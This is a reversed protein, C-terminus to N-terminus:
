YITYEVRVVHLVQQYICMHTHTKCLTNYRTGLFDDSSVLDADWVQLTLKCPVKVETEQMAFISEKQMMVIKEEAKLYDFPFLM